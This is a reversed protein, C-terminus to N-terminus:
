LDTIHGSELRVTNSDIGFWTNPSSVISFTRLRNASSADGDSVSTSNYIDENSAPSATREAMTFAYPTDEFVTPHDNCDTLTFSLVADVPTRLQPSGGPFDTGRVTLSFSNPQMEYDWTISSSALLRIVGNDRGVTFRDTNGTHLLIFSFVLALMM